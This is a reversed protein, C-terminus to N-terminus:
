SRAELFYLKIETQIRELILVNMHDHLSKEFGSLGNKISETILLKDKENIHEPINFSIPSFECQHKNWIELSRRTIENKTNEDAQTQDLIDKICKKILVNDQVTKTPFQIINDM